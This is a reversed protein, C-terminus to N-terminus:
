IIPPGELRINNQQRIIDQERIRLATENAIVGATYPNYYGHYQIPLEERRGPDPPTIIGIDSGLISFDAFLAEGDAFPAFNGDQDIENLHFGKMDGIRINIRKIIDDRIEAPPSIWAPMSFTLNWIIIRRNSEMPVNEENSIATLEVSTIKTWDFPADSKQIQIMPDFMIFIPELIQFMQDSNSAYIHLDFTLNYPIPMIRKVTKVDDPFVGGQEMYTRQDILNVGKRRDPALEVTNMYCSMMPLTHQKNQTNKSGLMAVVRDKSSYTIPVDLMTEEGCGDKGTKVKTGAFINAFSVIWKKLQNNYYYSNNIM